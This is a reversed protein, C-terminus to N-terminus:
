HRVSCRHNRTTVTLVEGEIGACVGDIEIAIGEIGAHTSLEIALNGTDM